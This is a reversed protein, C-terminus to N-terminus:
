PSISCLRHLNRSSAYVRVCPKTIINKYIGKDWREYQILECNPLRSPHSIHGNGSYNGKCDQGPFSTETYGKLKFGRYNTILKSMYLIFFDSRGHPLLSCLVSFLQVGIWGWFSASGEWRHVKFGPKWYVSRRQHMASSNSVSKDMCCKLFLLLSRSCPFVDTPLM